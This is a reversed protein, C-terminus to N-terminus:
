IETGAAHRHTAMSQVTQLGYETKNNPMLTTASLRGPALNASVIFLSFPAGSANEFQLATYLADAHLEKASQAIVRSVLGSKEVIKKAPLSAYHPIFAITKSAAAFSDICA